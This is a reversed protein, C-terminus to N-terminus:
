NESYEAWGTTTEHLRVKYLYWKIKKYTELQYDNLKDNLTNYMDEAMNEATPNYETIRFKKTYKSLMDLYEKPFMKPMTLSHDWKDIYDKLIDKVEGFDVVMGTEDTSDASLYIELVYSHGHLNEHCAASYSDWLQHAMEFKFQKRIVLM